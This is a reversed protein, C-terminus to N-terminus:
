ARPNLEEVRSVERELSMRLFDRCQDAVEERASNSDTAIGRFEVDM